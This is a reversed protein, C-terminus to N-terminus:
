LRSSLAVSLSRFFRPSNVSTIKNDTDKYLNFVNISIVQVEDSNVAQLTLPVDDPSFREDADIIFVWDCTALEISYNRHKSFDGEWPQHFIKAGYSEAIEVTRDTSGTDVIVIEDVWDRISDLCGPLLEEENKVIMCASITVAQKFSESLLRLEQVQRCESMGQAVIAEATKADNQRRAIGALNLYPLHNGPDALRALDFQARANDLEGREQLCSGLYNLVQSRHADSFSFEDPPAAASCRKDYQALYEGASTVAKDYERLSLHVYSRIFHYDLGEPYAALGRRCMKEADLLRSASAYGFALLRDYLDRDRENDFPYQKELPEVAEVIESELNQRLYHQGLALRVRVDDPKAAVAELLSRLPGDPQRGDVAVKRGKAGKPKRVRSANKKRSNAM